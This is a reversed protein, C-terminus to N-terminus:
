MTVKDLSVSFGLRSLEILQWKFGFMHDMEVGAVFLILSLASRLKATSVIAQVISCQNLPNKILTEMFLRLNGTLWDKDKNIDSLQETDQYFEGEFTTSHLVLM